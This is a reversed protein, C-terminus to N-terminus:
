LRPEETGQFRAREGTILRASRNRTLYNWAWQVLVLLRNEFQALNLLHVFLWTLWGILGTLRLWGFDVVAASRGITAMTGQNRYRFPRPATGALRDKLTRAVYRGQQIAVPAVAPLPEGDQELHALDGIVFVEARGPLTLEPGLVIRGSRNLEVGTAEALL